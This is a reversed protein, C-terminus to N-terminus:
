NKLICRFNPTPINIDSMFLMLYPCLLNCIKLIVDIESVFIISSICISLINYYLEDHSVQTGTQTAAIPKQTSAHILQPRPSESQLRNGQPTLPRATVVCVCLFLLYM